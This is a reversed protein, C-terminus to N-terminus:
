LKPSADNVEAIFDVLTATLDVVEERSLPISGRQFLALKACASIVQRIDSTERGSLVAHRAAFSKM